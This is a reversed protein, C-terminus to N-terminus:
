NKPLYPRVSELEDQQLSQYGSMTIKKLVQKGKDSQDLTYLSQQLKNFLEPDMTNKALVTMGPFGETKHITRIKLGKSILHKEMFSVILSADSKGLRLASIADNHSHFHTIEPFKENNFDITALYPKVLQGMFGAEPPTGIRKGGLENITQIPSTEMVVFHGALKKKQSGVISFNGTDLAMLAFSPNTLVFDYRMSNTRRAFEDADTTTEIVVKHGLTSSLYARLPAMRKALALPSMFPAIGFVLHHQRYEEKANANGTLVILLGLVIVAWVRIPYSHEHSM